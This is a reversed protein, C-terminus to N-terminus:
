RILQVTEFLIYPLQFSIKALLSCIEDEGVTEKQHDGTAIVNGVGIESNADSLGLVVDRSVSIKHDVGGSIEKLYNRLNM